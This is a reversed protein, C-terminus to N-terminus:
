FSTTENDRKHLVGFGEAFELCKSQFNFLNSVVCERNVDMSTKCSRPVFQIALVAM